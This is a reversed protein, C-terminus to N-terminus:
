YIFRRDKENFLGTVTSMITADKKIPENNTILVIGMSINGLSFRGVIYTM